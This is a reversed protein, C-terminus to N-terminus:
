VINCLKSKKEKKSAKGNTSKTPPNKEVQKTGASVSTAETKKDSTKRENNKNETKTETRVKTQEQGGENAEEAALIFLNIGNYLFGM